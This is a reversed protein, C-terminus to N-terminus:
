EGRMYNQLAYDIDAIHYKWFSKDQKHAPLQLVYKIYTNLAASLVDESDITKLGLKDIIRLSIRSARAEEVLLGDVMCGNFTYWGLNAFPVSKRLNFGRTNCFTVTRKSSLHHGVEHFFVEYFNIQLLSVTIGKKGNMYESYNGEEESSLKAVFSIGYKRCVKKAFM